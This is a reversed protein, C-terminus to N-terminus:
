PEVHEQRARTPHDAVAPTERLGSLCPYEVNSYTTFPAFVAAVKDSVFKQFVSRMVTPQQTQTNLVALKLPRGLVGGQSNLKDVALQMGRRMELGTGAFSGTVPVGGGIVIPKGRPSKFARGSRADRGRESAGAAGGSLGGAVLAGASAAGIGRLFGRRSIRQSDIAM